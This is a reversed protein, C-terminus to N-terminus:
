SLSPCPECRPCSVAVDSCGPLSAFFTAVGAHGGSPSPGLVGPPPPLPGPAGLPLGPVVGGVPMPMWIFDPRTSYRPTLLLGEEGRVLPLGLLSIPGSLGWVWIFRSLGLRGLFRDASPAGVWAVGWGEELLRPHVLHPLPCLPLILGAMRLM